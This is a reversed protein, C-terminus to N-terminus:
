KKEEKKPKSGTGHGLSSVPGRDRDSMLDSRSMGGRAALAEAVGQQGKMNLIAREVAKDKRKPMRMRRQKMYVGIKTVNSKNMGTRIM